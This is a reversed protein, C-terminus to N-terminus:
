VKLNIECEIWQHDSVMENRKGVRYTIPAMTSKNLLCWDLKASYVKGISSVTTDKKKDFPDFFDLGFQNNCYDVAHTQFWEAETFGITGIRSHWNPSLKPICRTFGNCLTNFDGAIIQYNLSYKEKQSVIHPMLDKYQNIRGQTGCHTDIHISSCGILGWPTDIIAAMAFHVKIKHKPIRQCELFIGYSDNIPYKSLIANGDCGGTKFISQPVFVGDMSLLSAIEGLSDVRSNRKTLMDVEQLFVIDPQHKRILDIIKQLQKGMEINISMIKIQPKHHELSNRNHALFNRRIIIGEQKPIEPLEDEKLVKTYPSFGKFWIASKGKHYRKVAYRFYQWICLIIICVGVLALLIFLLAEGIGM